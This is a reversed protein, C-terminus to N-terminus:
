KRSASLVDPAAADFGTPLQANRGALVRRMGASADAASEGDIFLRQWIELNVLSWLREWHNEDGRQHERVLQEVIPRQFLGRERARGGLVYEEVVPRYRDKFWSGVPVPFGMKSRTLIEQPLFGKMAERLVYKTTGSKLKMEEPMGAAFEMLPHDLFPVRSEISAAMSMQDQKM